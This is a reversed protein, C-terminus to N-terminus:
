HWDVIWWIKKGGSDCFINRQLKLRMNCCDRVFSVNIKKKPSFLESRYLDWGRLFDVLVLLGEFVLELHLQICALSLNIRTEVVFWILVGLLHDLYNVLVELGIFVCDDFHKYSIDEVHVHLHRSNDFSVEFIFCSSHISFAFEIQHLIQDIWAFNSSFVHLYSALGISKLFITRYFTFDNM